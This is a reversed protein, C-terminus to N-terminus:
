LHLFLVLFIRLWLWRPSKLDSRGSSRIQLGRVDTCCRGIQTIIDPRTFFPLGRPLGLILASLPCNCKGLAKNPSSIEETAKHVRFVASPIVLLLLHCLFATAKGMRGHQVYFFFQPFSEVLRHCRFLGNRQIRARRCPFLSSPACFDVPHGNQTSLLRGNVQNWCKQCSIPLM